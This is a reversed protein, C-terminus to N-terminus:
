QFKQYFHLDTNCSLLYIDVCEDFRIVARGDGDFGESGNLFVDDYEMYEESGGLDLVDNKYLFVSENTEM